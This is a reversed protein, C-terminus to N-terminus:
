LFRSHTSAGGYGRGVVPDYRQPPKRDRTPRRGQPTHFEMEEEKNERSRRRSPRPPTHFASDPVDDELVSIDQNKNPRKLQKKAQRKNPRAISAEPIEDFPEDERFRKRANGEDDADRRRKRNATQRSRKSESVEVDGDLKRKDRRKSPELASPFPSPSVSPPVDMEDEKKVRKKERDFDSERQRRRDTSPEDVTMKVERYDDNDDFSPTFSPTEPQASPPGTSGGRRRSCIGLCELRSLSLPLM